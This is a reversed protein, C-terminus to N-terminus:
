EKREKNPAQGDTRSRGPLPIDKALLSTKTARVEQLLGEDAAIVLAFRQLTDLDRYVDEVPFEETGVHAWRNRVTQMEKIFHRAEPQLNLKSSIQYWNQDFIRLLAALDFSSLSNANRQEVWRQQQFSLNNFVAQKWWDEYLTPLVRELFAALYVTIKQLLNNLNYEM